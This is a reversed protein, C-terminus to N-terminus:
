EGFLVAVGLVGALERSLNGCAWLMTEWNGAKVEQYVASFAEEASATRKMALLEAPSKAGRMRSILNRSTESGNELKKRILGALGGVSYVRLHDFGLDEACLELSRVLYDFRSLPRGFTYEAICDSIPTTSVRLLPSRSPETACAELRGALWVCKDASSAYDREAGPQRFSYRFGFYKGMVKQTDNYGLLNNQNMVDRDFRLFSGLNWSPKVYTVFPKSYYETHNIQDKLDIAIVEDAGMKLAFHIPLNDYYGGDIYSKGDIKCMPFAPFCSASALLYERVKGQQIEEKRLELPHLSPFQVTVIGLDVPSDRLKKEDIVRDLLEKLPTIDAGKYHVYKKLFAMLDGKQDLMKEISPELNIGDAMVNEVTITDWLEQALDYDGQAMLAGNLAGISTGTVLQYDVGNEALSRWAGAEYAGRSGGGSLAVARKM